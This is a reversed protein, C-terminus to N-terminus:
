DSPPFTVVMTMGWRLRPDSKELSVTVTYTVDGRKEAHLTSIDTVIGHLELEPLADPTISVKQGLIVEPVEIETLNDTEVKWGSFDAVTAVTQGPQVYADLKLPLDAISGSWPARLENHALNAKASELSARTSRALARASDVSVSASEQQMRALEVAVAASEHQVRAVDVAVAASEHQVRAVQLALEAQRVRLEIQQAQTDAYAARAEAQALQAEALEKEDPDIGDRLESLRKRADDLQAQALMIDAQLQQTALSVDQPLAPDDASQGAAALIGERSYKESQVWELNRVVRALDMQAARISEENQLRAKKLELVAEDYQSVADNYDEQADVLTGTRGDITIKREADCTWTVKTVITSYSTLLEDAIWNPVDYVNDAEYTESRYTLKESFELKTTTGTELNKKCGPVAKGVKDLFDNEDDVLEEARDVADTLVGIDVITSSHQLQQLVNEAQLVQQEYYHVDPQNVVPLADEATQLQELTQQIESEIQAPTLSAADRLADLKQQASITELAAQARELALQPGELQAQALSHESRQTEAEAQDLNYEAQQINANAQELGLEARQIHATAEDLGLEAQQLSVAAQEVNASAQAYAAQLQPHNDLRAIPKGATVAEGEQVLLETVRGAMGFALEIHREPVLQGEALVGYDQTITPIADSVAVANKEQECGLLGATFVILVSALMFTKNNM